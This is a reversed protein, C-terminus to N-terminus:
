REAAAQGRRTFDRRYATPTTGLRRQFHARMSSANPFGAEHAIEEVSRESTELMEQALLLRQELLWQAPTTGTESRFHRTFTRRSMSARRAFEDLRIPRGLHALAWQRATETSPGGAGAGAFYAPPIYQAQGGERYPSFVSLRAAEAAAAAGHDRRLVHLSLDIGAAVGASTLVTGEDVYLVGPDVEVAPFREALLDTALWHTTARRGDLLGAEGLVLAGTCISMVRAGREHAAAVAEAIWPFTATEWTAFGPVIVTDAGEVAELGREALIKVGAAVEVEGPEHAVVEFSYRSGGLHGFVQAPGALDLVLANPMSVAVVRQPSAM